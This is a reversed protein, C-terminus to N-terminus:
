TSVRNGLQNVIGSAHAVACHLPIHLPQHLSSVVPTDHEPARFMAAKLPVSMSLLCKRHHSPIFFFVGPSPFVSGASGIGRLKRSGEGLCGQKGLCVEFDCTAFHPPAPSGLGITLLM